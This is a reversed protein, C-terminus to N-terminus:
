GWDIAVDRESLAQETGAAADVRQWFAKVRANFDDPSEQFPQHAEGEMLQFEAGPIRDAVVRSLRPPTAIDQSGALVLTPAEILPLRDYSDHPEFADLQRLFDETSQPHEFGLAEEIVADVFGNKHGRETYIWILFDELMAREDTANAALRRWARTIALFLPETRAWTSMLVLSRVADPHRLALEQAVASGGSFGCVHASEAGLGRIVAAADDAMTAVTLPDNERLPTRGTGRNDYATVRYRNSLGDLQFSWAEAPDTLGAILLVDPGSGRTEVYMETRPDIQLTAM